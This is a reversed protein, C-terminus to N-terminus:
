AEYIGVGQIKYANPEKYKSKITEAYATASTVAEAYADAYTTFFRIGGCEYTIIFDYQKM